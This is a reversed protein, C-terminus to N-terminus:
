NWFEKIFAKLLEPAFEKEPSTIYDVTPYSETEHESQKITKKILQAAAKVVWESEEKMDSKGTHM